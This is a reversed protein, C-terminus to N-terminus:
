AVLSLKKKATYPYKTDFDETFLEMNLKIFTYISSKTGVKTGNHFYTNGEKSFGFESIDMSRGTRRMQRQRDKSPRVKSTIRHAENIINENEQHLAIMKILANNTAEDLTHNMEFKKRLQNSVWKVVQRNHKRGLTVNRRCVKADFKMYNVDVGDIPFDTYIIRKGNEYVIKLDVSTISPRLEPHSSEKAAVSFGFRIEYYTGIRTNGNSAYRNSIYKFPNQEFTATPYKTLIIAKLEDITNNLNETITM